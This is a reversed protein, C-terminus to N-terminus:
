FTFTVMRQILSSTPEISTLFSALTLRFDPFGPITLTLRFCSRSLLKAKPITYDLEYATERSPWALAVLAAVLVVVLILRM